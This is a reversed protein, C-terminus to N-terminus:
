EFFITWCAMDQEPVYSDFFYKINRNLNIKFISELENFCHKKFVKRTYCIYNEDGSKLLMQEAKSLFGRFLCIAQHKSINIELSDPGKGVKDKVFKSIDRTLRQKAMELPTSTIETM